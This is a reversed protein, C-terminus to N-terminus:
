KKKANKGIDKISKQEKRNNIEFNIKAHLHISNHSDVVIWM